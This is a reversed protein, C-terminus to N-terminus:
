IARILQRLCTSGLLNLSPKRILLSFTVLSLARLKMLM